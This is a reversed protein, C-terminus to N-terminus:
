AAATALPAGLAGDKEVLRGTQVHQEVGDILQGMMQKFKPIMMAKAMLWGMPGMKPLMEIAYTVRSRDVEVPEVSFWVAMHKMPFPGHDVVEVRYRRNAADHDTIEEQVSNGDYMTCMRRAGLGRDKGNVSRSREVIPHYVYTNAFDDLVEWVRDAPADIVKQVEFEHM